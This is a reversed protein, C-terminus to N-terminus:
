DHWTMLHQRLLFLELTYFKSTWVITLRINILFNLKEMGHKMNTPPSLILPSSNQKNITQVPHLFLGCTGLFALSAGGRWHIAGRKREEREDKCRRLACMPAARLMCPESGGNAISVQYLLMRSYASLM